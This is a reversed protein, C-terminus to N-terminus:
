FLAILLRTIRVNRTYSTMLIASQQLEKRKRRIHAIIVSYCVISISIPLTYACIFFVMYVQKGYIVGCYVYDQLTRIGCLYLLPSNALLAVTWVLVIFVTVLKVAFKQRIRGRTVTFCRFVAIAVMTYVSVYIASHIVYTHIRCLFEGAQWASTAYRYTVIPLAVSAFILDSVALNLLFLNVPTRMERRRAIVNIVAINGSVALVSILAFVAPLVKTFVTRYAEVEWPQWAVVDTVATNRARLQSQTRVTTM